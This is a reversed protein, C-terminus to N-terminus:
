WGTFLREPPPSSPPPPADWLLEAPEKASYAYRGPKLTVVEGPKVTRGGFQLPASADLRYRGGIDIRAIGTGTLAKGPLFLPGWYRRYTDRLSIVDEALLGRPNRDSDNPSIRDVALLERTELLFKPQKGAIIPGMVPQGAARYDAMGWTSMFFGQKPFSSVMSTHDIYGVPESFLEHVLALTERQPEIPRKAVQAFAMIASMAFLALLLLRYRPRAQEFAFGAIVALPAILFPLYYPYVDRYVALAILPLAYCLIAPDSNATRKVLRHVALALGCVLATWFGPNQALAPILTGAVKTYDGSLLTAGSTRGVFASTSATQALSLSHLWLIAGLAALAVLAALMIPGIRQRFNGSQWARLLLLAGISPMFFVAKITMTGALGVLAGLAIAQRSTLVPSSALWIALMMAMTALTDTRFDTAYLLVQGFCNFALVSVLAADRGMHRLSIRHIALSTVAVCALMALRAAILQDVENASILPLWAFLHVFATQLIESLEGRRFDYVMSLNLFEDWNLNLHTAVHLRAVAVLALCWCLLVRMPAMKPEAFVLGRLALFALVNVPIGALLGALYHNIGVLAFGGILLINVLYLASWVAVFAPLRGHLRARFTVKGQLVFGLAIGFILSILSALQYSAGLALGGAYVAYAIATNTGGVMIFRLLTATERQALHGRLRAVGAM